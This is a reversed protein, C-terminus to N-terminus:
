VYHDADINIDLGHHHFGDYVLCKPPTEFLISANFSDM